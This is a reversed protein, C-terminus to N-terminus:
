QQQNVQFIQRIISNIKTNSISLIVPFVAGYCMTFFVRIDSVMVNLENLITQSLKITNDIGYFSVYFSVLVIVTKAAKQDARHGRNQDENRITKMTKNHKHLILLMRASALAMLIVFILNFAVDVYGTAEFTRKDPYIILCFGPNFVYKLHSANHPRTAMLVVDSNIAMNALYLGAIVPNVSYHVMQKDAMNTTSLIACQFCSLLCTLGIAMGRFVRFVYSVVKCSADGFHDKWGYDHFVAPLTRTLYVIVNAAALHSLVTESKALQHEQYVILAFTLLILTNGVVGITTMLLYISAKIIYYSEMSYGDLYPVVRTFVPMGVRDSDSDEDQLRLDEDLIRVGNKMTPRSGMLRLCPYEYLPLLEEIAM